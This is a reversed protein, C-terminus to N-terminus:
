LHQYDAWGFPMGAAVHVAQLLYFAFFKMAPGAVNETVFPIKEPNGYWGLSNRIVLNKGLSFVTDISDGASSKMFELVESTELPTYSFATCLIPQPAKRKLAKLEKATVAFQTLDATAWDRASLCFIVGDSLYMNAEGQGVPPWFDSAAVVDFPGAQRERIDLVFGASHQVSVPLLPDLFRKYLLKLMEGHHPAKQVSAYDLQLVQTLSAFYDTIM